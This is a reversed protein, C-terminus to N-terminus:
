EKKDGLFIICFCIGQMFNEEVELVLTFSTDWNGIEFDAGGTKSLGQTLILFFPLGITNIIM